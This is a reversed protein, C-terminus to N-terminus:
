VTAGDIVFYQLSFMGPLVSSSNVFLTTADNQSSVQMGIVPQGGEFHEYFISKTSYLEVDISSKIYSTFYMGTTRHNQADYDFNVQTNAFSGRVPNMILGTSTKSTTNTVLSNDWKKEITLSIQGNSLIYWYDFSIQLPEINDFFQETQYVNNNNDLNEFVIPNNFISGKSPNQSYSDDPIDSHLWLKASKDQQINNVYSTRMPSYFNSSQDYLTNLIVTRSLKSYKKNISIKRDTGIVFVSFDTDAAQKASTIYVFGSLKQTIFDNNTTTFCITLVPFCPLYLASYDEVNWITNTAVAYFNNLYLVQPAASTSGVFLISLYLLLHM